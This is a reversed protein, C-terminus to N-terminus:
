GDVIKGSFFQAPRKFGKRPKWIKEADGHPSRSAMLTGGSSVLVPLHGTGSTVM